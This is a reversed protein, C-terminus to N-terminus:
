REELKARLRFRDPSHLQDRIKHDKILHHIYGGDETCFVAGAKCGNNRETCHYYWLHGDKKVNRFMISILNQFECKKFHLRM